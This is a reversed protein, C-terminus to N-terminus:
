ARGIKIDHASQFYDSNKAFEEVLRQLELLRQEANSVPECDECMPNECPQRTYLWYHIAGMLMGDSIDWLDAEPREEAIQNALDVVQGAAEDYLGGVNEIILSKNKKLLSM